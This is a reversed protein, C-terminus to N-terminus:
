NLDSSPSIVTLLATKELMVPMGALADADRCDGVFQIVSGIGSQCLAVSSSRESGYVNM